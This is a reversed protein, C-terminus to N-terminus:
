RRLKRGHFEFNEFIFEQEEEAGGGRVIGDIIVTQQQEAVITVIVDDGDALIEIPRGEDASTSKASGTLKTSTTRPLM